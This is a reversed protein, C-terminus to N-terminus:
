LTSVFKRDLTPLLHLLLQKAERYDELHLIGRHCHIYRVPVGLVITPVGTGALHISGADTGGSSRVALQYKIGNREAVAIVHDRLRRNGVMTPDFCRVQVGKGLAGQPGDRALGPLDDAPPGELVIAVDPEVHLAATRAGRLGVEEQVTAAGYLSGPLPSHSRAQLVEVLLSCGVRDDFAKGMVLLPNHLRHFGSVPLVFAGVAIGMGDVEEPSFAGVDVLLNELKPAEDAESKKRTFHPPVAAIMGGVIGKKGRVEVRHGALHAATWGGLPQLRLFGEKTVSSVMFAVEDMHAALMVRPRKRPSGLRFILSGLRDREPEGLIKLEERLVDAVEQEDGPAGPTRSLRELLRVGARGPAPARLGRKGSM